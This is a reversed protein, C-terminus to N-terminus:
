RASTVKSTCGSRGECGVARCVIPSTEYHSNMPSIGLHPPSLQHQLPTKPAGALHLSQATAFYGASTEAYLQMTNNHQKNKARLVM